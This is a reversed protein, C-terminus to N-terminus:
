KFYPGKMAEDVKRELWFTRLKPSAGAYYTHTSQLKRTGIKEM